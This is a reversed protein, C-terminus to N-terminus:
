QRAERRKKLRDPYKGGPVMYDDPVEPPVPREGRLDMGTDFLSLQVPQQIKEKLLQYGYIIHKRVLNMNFGDEWHPDSCGEKSLRDWRAFDAELEARVQAETREEPPIYKGM